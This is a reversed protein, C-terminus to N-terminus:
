RRLDRSARGRIRGRGKQHLECSSYARTSLIPPAAADLRVFLGNKYMSVVGRESVTNPGNDDASSATTTSSPTESFPVLRHKRTKASFHFLTTSLRWLILFLTQSCDFNKIKLLRFECNDRLSVMRRRVTLSNSDVSIVSLPASPLIAEWIIDGGSIHFLSNNACVYSVDSESEPLM